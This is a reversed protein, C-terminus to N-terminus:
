ATVSVMPRSSMGTPLIVTMVSGFTPWEDRHGFYRHGRGQSGGQVDSRSESGKHTVEPRVKAPQLPYPTPTYPMMHLPTHAPKRLQGKEDLRLHRAEEPDLFGTTDQEGEVTAGGHCSSDSSSGEEWLRDSETIDQEEVPPLDVNSIQPSRPPM